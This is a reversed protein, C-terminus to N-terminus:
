ARTRSAPIPRRVKERNLFLNHDVSLQDILALDQNVVDIGCARAEDVSRPRYAAGKAWRTGSDPRQFGCLITRPTSKGAGNDGIRSLVEGRRLHLNVDQLVRTSGYSKTIHGGRLVDDPSSQLRTVPEKVSVAHEAM